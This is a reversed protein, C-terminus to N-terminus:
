FRTHNWLLLGLINQEFSATRLYIDVLTYTKIDYAFKSKLIVAYRICGEGEQADFAWFTRVREAVM